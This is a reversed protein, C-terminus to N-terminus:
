HVRLGGVLVLLPLVSQEVLDENYFCRPYTTIGFVGSCVLHVVYM